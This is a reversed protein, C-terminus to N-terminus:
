MNQSIQIHCKKGWTLRLNKKWVLRIDNPTTQLFILKWMAHMWMWMANVQACDIRYYVYRYKSIMQHFNILLPHGSIQAISRIASTM